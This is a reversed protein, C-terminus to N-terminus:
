RNSTDLPNGFGLFRIIIICYCLEDLLIWLVNGINIFVENM